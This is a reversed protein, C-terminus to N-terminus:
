NSRNFPLSNFPNKPSGNDESVVETVDTDNEPLPEADEGPQTTSPIEDKPRSPDPQGDFAPTDEPNLNENNSMRLKERKMSKFTM